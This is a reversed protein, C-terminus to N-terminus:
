LEELVVEDSKVQIFYFKQFRGEFNLVWETMKIQQKFDVFLWHLCARDDGDCAGEKMAKTFPDIGMELRETM